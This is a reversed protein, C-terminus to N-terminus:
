SYSIMETLFASKKNDMSYIREQCACKVQLKIKMIHAAGFINKRSQNAVHNHDDCM